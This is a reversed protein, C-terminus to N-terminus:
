KEAKIQMKFVGAWPDGAMMNEHVSLKYIGDTPLIYEMNRGFPGDTTGDPLFIQSFRINASSDASSLNASIKKFDDSKFEIYVTQNKDKYIQIISKDGALDLFVVGSDAPIVIEESTNRDNVPNQTESVKNKGYSCANLNLLFFVIPLFLCVQKIM